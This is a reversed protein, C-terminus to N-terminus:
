DEKSPIDINISPMLRYTELEDVSRSFTDPDADAVVAMFDSLKVHHLEPCEELLKVYVEIMEGITIDGFMM